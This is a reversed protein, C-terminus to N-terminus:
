VIIVLTAVYIAYKEFWFDWNQTFKTPYQLWLNQYIKHGYPKNQPWKAYKINKTYKEGNARAAHRMPCQMWRLVSFVRTWIGGPYLTKLSVYCHQQTYFSMNICQKHTSLLFLPM